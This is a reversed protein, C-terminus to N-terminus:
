ATAATLQSLLRAAEEPSMGVRWGVAHLREAFARRIPGNRDQEDHCGPCAPDGDELEGHDLVKCIHDAFCLGHGAGCYLRWVISAVEPPGPINAPATWDVSM